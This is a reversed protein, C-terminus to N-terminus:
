EWVPSFGSGGSWRTFLYINQKGRIFAPFDYSCCSSKSNMYLPLLEFIHLRICKCCHSNMGVATNNCIWHNSLNADPKNRELLEYDQKTFMTCWVIGTRHSASNISHYILCKKIRAIWNLGSTKICATWIISKMQCSCVQNNKFLQNIFLKYWMQKNVLTLM